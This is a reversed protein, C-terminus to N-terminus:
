CRPTTPSTRASSSSTRSVPDVGGRVRAGPVARGARQGPRLCTRAWTSIVWERAAAFGDPDADVDSPRETLQLYFRDPALETVRVAPAMRVRDAGILALYPPGLVTGWSAGGAM